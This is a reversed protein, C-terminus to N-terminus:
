YITNISSKPITIVPRIGFYFSDGVYYSSLSGDVYVRWSSNSDDSVPSSVWYGFTNSDVINCGYNTCGNTYDFLWAYESKESSNAIQTQKNTGTGDFYFWKSSNGNFTTTNTITAIENATILGPSGVWGSTDSDVVAKISAQAYEKYTGSTEYAAKDTTNHDLILKYNDGSDDYVYFKMCGSPNAAGTGIQSNSETCEVTLDKPNLYTVGKLGLQKVPTSGTSYVDSTDVSPKHVTLPPTTSSSSSSSCGKKVETVEKEIYTVSYNEICLHAETVKGSDNISVTGSSPKKGKLKVNINTVDLNNGTILTYGVQETEAFGNNYEIAEVFGYASSEAAKKRANNIMNLVIPIAILAIIALIVIVALLEILTFGKKNKM